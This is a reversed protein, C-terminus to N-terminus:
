GAVAYGQRFKSNNKLEKIHIKESILRKHYKPGFDLSYCERLGNFSRTRFYSGLYSVSHKQLDLRINKVYENLRTKLKRKTQRV